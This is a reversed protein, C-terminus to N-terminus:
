ELLLEKSLPDKLIRIQKINSLCLPTPDANATKAANFQQAVQLVLKEEGNKVYSIDKNDIMHYASGDNFDIRGVFDDLQIDVQVANHVYIEGLFDNMSMSMCTKDTSATAKMKHSVQIVFDEGSTDATMYFQYGNVTGKSFDTSDFNEGDDTYFMENFAQFGENGAGNLMPFVHLDLPNARVDATTMIADM